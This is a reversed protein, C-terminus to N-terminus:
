FFIQGDWPSLTGRLLTMQLLIWLMFIGAIILILKQNRQFFGTTKLSLLYIIDISLVFVIIIGFIFADGLGLGFHINGQASLIAILGLLLNWFAM